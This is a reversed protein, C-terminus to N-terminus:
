SLTIGGSNNKQSLISKARVLRRHKWIFKLSSNEIEKTFTMPIKIPITSIMYMAKLLIAIKVTNITGIWSCPLDKWRRYDEKIKRRRHYTIRRTSIM